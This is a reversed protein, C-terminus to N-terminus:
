FELEDLGADSTEATESMDSTELTPDSSINEAQELLTEIDGNTVPTFHHCVTDPDPLGTTEPMPEGPTLRAPHNKRTEENALWGKRIASNARRSILDPHVGLEKGVLSYTIARSQDAAYLKVVQEVVQKVGESLGTVSAAYIGQVLEYVTRYDDITAVLRGHQDRDRRQHRLIAVAKILSLLRQFDRVVRTAATSKGIEAALQPAFPVVVDWPAMAQLYAQFDILADDIPTAGNTEISAQMTLAAKVQDADGSVDLTFLRTMLQGGLPKVSTTLLVTPGPKEINRVTFEGTETDRVTVSYHLCNDQALNRVASAAPNDEGAPLSDAEGYVLVRHELPANDYILVRPSAADLEHKSEDPLLGLAVKVAYSKGASPPGLLLLHVPMTGLRMALLRSTAALYVVLPNGLDGGYGSARIAGKVGEIPDPLGLVSAARERLESALENAQLRLLDQASVADAKLTEILAAVDMGQLHAESIDKIGEPARIVKLGPLDAGVRAILDDADPEVWLYVDLGELHEAWEAKWTSKGPIGLTPIDHLWGTWTDSEGETLLAWGRKRIETLKQLGYLLIQTGSGWSFRQGEHGLSFRYRTRVTNGEADMYPIAIRKVGNYPKDCVGWQTLVELSISKVRSLTAVSADLGSDKVKPKVQSTEQPSVGPSVSPSVGPSITKTSSITSMGPDKVKRKVMEGGQGIPSASSIKKVSPKYGNQSNGWLGKQQLADM